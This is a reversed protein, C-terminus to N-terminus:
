LGAMFAFVHDGIWPLGEHGYDTSVVMVGFLDELNLLYRYAALRADHCGTV